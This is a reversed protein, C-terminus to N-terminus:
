SSQLDELYATKYEYYRQAYADISQVEEDTLERRVRAPTGMVLSRPPIVMREPVLSGAAIISHSGVVVDNLLVARMGILCHSQIACGHLMAGHGVTVSDGVICPCQDRMVHLIAGDQINTRSGIRVIDVDGRVVSNFWISSDDGVEVDGIVQAGGAVFVGAGLKPLIGKYKVLAM